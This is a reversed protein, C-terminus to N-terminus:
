YASKWQRVFEDAEIIFANFDSELQQRSEQLDEIGRSLPLRHSIRRELSSLVRGVVPEERYSVLWNDRIMRPLLNKMGSPLLQKCDNLGEYVEQSFEELPQESRDSWKEALFHDYFVDVLIGRGYRYHSALRRCSAQFHSNSHAFTDIKRHLQLHKLLQPDVNDPLPGKLFDGMLSGAWALPEKDSFYLHALYNM